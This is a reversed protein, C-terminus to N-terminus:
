NNLGGYKYMLFYRFMDIKMIMRPLENFKDCYDPFETKIFANMDEDTYFRYEFDPYLRKIERQCMKYTDPLDHNQLNSPIIATTAAM